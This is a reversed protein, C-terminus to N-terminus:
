PPPTISPPTPVCCRLNARHQFPHVPPLCCTPKTNTCTHLRAAPLNPSTPKTNTCTYTHIQGTCFSTSQSLHSRPLVSFCMPTVELTPSALSHMHTKTHVPIPSQSSHLPKEQSPENLPPTKRPKTRKPILPTPFDRLQNNPCLHVRLQTQPYLNWLPVPVKNTPPLYLSPLASQQQQM